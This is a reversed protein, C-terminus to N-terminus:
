TRVHIHVHADDSGCTHACMATYMINIHAYWVSGITERCSVFLFSCTKVYAYSCACDNGCPQTHMLAALGHTFICMVAIMSHNHRCAFTHKLKNMCVATYTCMLVIM